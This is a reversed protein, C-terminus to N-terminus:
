DGFVQNIYKMVAVVNHGKGMEVSIYGDYNKRKLLDRLETHINRKIIELLGPESIHVHNVYHINNEIISIDEENQIMTGLDLNLRLGKSNVSKIFAIASSTDNIFNTNYITSVAELGIVTNHEFAFEAIEQFFPIAIQMPEINDPVKRNKPCGLVLNNCEIKEAFLIAKKTYTILEDRERATSFINENKGYWISQMSPISFGREKELVEKWKAIYELNDYPSPPLIIRSPAIELGQYGYKKMLDYMLDDNEMDWAINSIATKM